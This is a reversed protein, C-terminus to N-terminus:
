LLIDNDSSIKRIRCYGLDINTFHHSACSFFMIKSIITLCKFFITVAIKYNKGKHEIIKALFAAGATTDRDEKFEDLAFRTSISTKGV